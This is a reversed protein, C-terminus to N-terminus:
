RVERSMIEEAKSLLHRFRRTKEERLEPYEEFGAASRAPCQCDCQRPAFKPCPVLRAAEDGPEGLWDLEEDTLRRYFETKARHWLEAEPPVLRSELRGLRREVIGV